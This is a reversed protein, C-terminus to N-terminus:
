IAAVFDSTYFEGSTYIQEGPPGEIFVWAGTVGPAVDAEINATGTGAGDTYLFGFGTAPQGPGCLNTPRPMEILRVNFRTDRQANALHVEANVKNSGTRGILAFAAGM